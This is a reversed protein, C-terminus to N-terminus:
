ANEPAMRRTVELARSEEAARREAAEREHQVRDREHNATDRQREMDGRQGWLVASLGALLLSLLALGALIMPARGARRQSRQAAAALFRRARESQETAGKLAALDAENPLGDGRAGTGEWAAAVAELEEEVALRKR